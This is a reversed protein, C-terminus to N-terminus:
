NFVKTLRFLDYEHAIQIYIKGLRPVAPLLFNYKEGHETVSVNMLGSVIKSTPLM